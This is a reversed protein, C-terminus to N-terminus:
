AEVHHPRLEARQDRDAAEGEGARERAEAARHAERSTVLPGAPHGGAPSNGRLSVAILCLIFAATTCSNPPASRTSSTSTGSTRGPRMRTAISAEPTQWVSRCAAEPSQGTFGVRGKM